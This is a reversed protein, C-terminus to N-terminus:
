DNCMYSTGITNHGTRGDSPQPVTSALPGNLYTTFIRMSSPVVQFKAFIKLIEGVYEKVLVGHDPVWKMVVWVKFESHNWTFSSVINNTQQVGNCWERVDRAHQAVRRWLVMQPLVKYYPHLFTYLSNCCNEDWRFDIFYIGTMKIGSPVVGLVACNCKFKTASDMSFDGGKM